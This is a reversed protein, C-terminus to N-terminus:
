YVVIGLFRPRPGTSGNLAVPDGATLYNVVVDAFAPDIDAVPLSVFVRGAGDTAGYGTLAAGAETAQTLVALRSVPTETTSSSSHTNDEEINCHLIAADHPPNRQDTTVEQRTASLQNGASLLHITTTTTITTTSVIKGLDANFSGTTVREEFRRGYLAEGQSVDLYYLGTTAFTITADQTYSYDGFSYRDEQYRSGQIGGLPLPQGNVLLVLEGSSATTNIEWTDGDYDSEGQYGGSSVRDDRLVAMVPTDGQYDVAVVVTGSYSIANSYFTTSPNINCVWNVASDQHEVIPGSPLATIAVTAGTLAAVFQRHGWLPQNPQPFTCTKIVCRAETGSANFFWGTDHRGVDAPHAWELLLEWPAGPNNWPRRYCRDVGLNNSDAQTICILWVQDEVTQLAAGLVLGPATYGVGQSYVTASFRMPVQYGSVAEFLYNYGAYHLSSQGPLVRPPAVARGWSGRWSLVRGATGRWVINGALPAALGRRLAWGTGAVSRWAVWPKPGGPTGPIIPQGQADSFPEGWGSPAEDSVPQCIFGTPTCPRPEREFGVVRPQTWDQDDFAVVVRDHLAFAAGHCDMYTIPVGTLTESQNVPLQQASSQAPDLIVSCSDGTLATITGLRYTPQWKQWGPLIAWNFFTGAPTSAITPQLQGDRAPTFAANGNYGPRILVAGNQREGPIELTAIEGALDESYDACWASMAPDAPMATTLYAQEKRLAALRWTLANHVLRAQDREGARHAVTVAAATMGEQDEATIALDQMTIAHDLAAQAEDLAAQAAALKVPDVAAIEEALQTLRKEVRARHLLLNVTYLGGPGGSVVFAKGM